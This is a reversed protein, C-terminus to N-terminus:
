VLDAARRSLVDSVGERVLKREGGKIRSGRPRLLRWLRTDLNGFQHRTDALGVLLAACHSRPSCGELGTDPRVLHLAHARDGLLTESRNQLAGHNRELGPRLPARCQRRGLCQEHTDSRRRQTPM